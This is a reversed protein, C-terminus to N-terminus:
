RMADYFAATPLDVEYVPYSALVEGKYAREIAGLPEVSGFMAEFGARNNHPDVLITPFTLTAPDLPEFRYRQREGISIVPRGSNVFHSYTAFEGVLGYHAPMAVWSAGRQDALTDLALATETWGHMDHTRDLHELGAPRTLVIWALLATLALGFLTQAYVAVGRLIRLAPNSRLGALVVFAAVLTAMPWLPLLWNAEVRARSAHIAFYIVAPLGSLVPWALQPWHKPRVLFLITAILFFLVVLPGLFLAQAGLLELYNAGLDAIRPDNLIRGGQFTFSIWGNQSNWILNPAVVLAAILGGAWLQWLKLWAWRERSSLIFLVIGAGLILNTYKGLVGLGAFLGVALWWNANRGAIFEAVAWAALMWFLTSPVDPTALLSLALGLSLNYWLVAILASSRDMLLTGTRYLALSILLPSILAALRVGFSSETLLRGAAILWAILPPHDMYGASPHLSWQTYYAEDPLLDTGAAIVARFLAQALVIVAVVTPTLWFPRFTNETQQM